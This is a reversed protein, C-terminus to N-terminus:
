RVSRAGPSNSTACVAPGREVTNGFRSETEYLFGFGRERTGLAAVDEGEQMVTFSIEPESRTVFAHLEVGGAAIEGAIGCVFVVTGIPALDDVRDAVSLLVNGAHSGFVVTDRSKSLVSPVTTGYRVAWFTPVAM